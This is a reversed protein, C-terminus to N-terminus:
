AIVARIIRCAAGQQTGRLRVADGTVRGIINVPSYARPASGTSVPTPGYFICFARGAPWYGLEGMAVDERAGPETEATVPIEFYVEDGWVNASANIPLAEWVLAAAPTDYLVAHLTIDGVTIVIQRM